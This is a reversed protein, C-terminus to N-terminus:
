KVLSRPSCHQKNVNALVTEQDVEDRVLHARQIEVPSIRDFMYSEIEPSNDLM